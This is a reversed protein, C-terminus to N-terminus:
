GPGYPLLVDLLAHPVPRHDGTVLDLGVDRLSYNESSAALAAESWRRVAEGEVGAAALLRPISARESATADDGNLRTLLTRGVEEDARLIRIAAAVVEPVLDWTDGTIEDISRLIARTRGESTGFVSLLSLASVRPMQMGQVRAAQEYSALDPSRPWGITLGVVVGVSDTELERQLCRAVEADASFSTGLIIGAEVSRQYQHLNAQGPRMRVARLSHDRLLATHPALRALARLSSPELANEVSSCYDLFPQRADSGGTLETALQDWIYGNDGGDRLLGKIVDDGLVSRLYSWKRLLTTLLRGNEGMRLHSLSSFIPGGEPSAIALVEGLCECEIAAAIAAGRVVDLDPGVARIESALRGLNEPSTREDRSLRRHYGTEASARVIPNREAVYQPLLARLSPSASTKRSVHDTLKSRLRDPLPRARALIEEQMEADTAFAKAM